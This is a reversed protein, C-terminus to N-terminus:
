LDRIDSKRAICGEELCVVGVRSRIFSRLTMADVNYPMVGVIEAIHSADDSTFVVVDEGSALLARVAELRRGRLVDSSQICLLTADPHNELLELTCDGGQADTVIFEAFPLAEALLAEQRTDVFELDPRSWCETDNSEFLLEDGDSTRFVLYTSTQSELIERERAVEIRLNVGERYPMFEVLPQHRLAYLNMGLPALLAVAAVIWSRRSVSDRECHLALYVAMPFFRFLM